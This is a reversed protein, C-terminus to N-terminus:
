SATPSQLLTMYSKKLLPPSYSIMCKGGIRVRHDMSDALETWPPGLVQLQLLKEFIPCLMKNKKHVKDSKQSM